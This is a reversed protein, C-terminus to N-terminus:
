HHFIAMSQCTAKPTQIPPPLSVALPAELCSPGHRSPSPWASVTGHGWTLQMLRELLENEFTKAKYCLRGEDLAGSAEGTEATEKCAEAHKKNGDGEDEALVEEQVSQSSCDM